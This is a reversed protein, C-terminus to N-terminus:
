LVLMRWAVGRDFASHAEAETSIVVHLNKIM